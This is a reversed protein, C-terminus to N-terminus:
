GRRLQLAIFALILVVGIPFLLSLAGQNQNYMSYGIVDDLWIVLGSIFSTTSIFGGTLYEMLLGFAMFGIGWALHTIGVVSVLFFALIFAVLIAIAAESDYNFGGKLGETIVIVSAPILTILFTKNIDGSLTIPMLYYLILSIFLGTGAYFFGGRLTGEDFETLYMLTALFLMGGAAYVIHYYDRAAFGVVLMLLSAGLIEPKRSLIFYAGFATAVILISLIIGQSSAQALSASYM